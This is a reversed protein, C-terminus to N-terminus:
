LNNVFIKFDNPYLNAIKAWRDKIFPYCFFDKIDILYYGWDENNIFGKSKLVFMEHVNNILFSSYLSIKTEAQTSGHAEALAKIGQKDNILGIYGDRFNRYVVAVMQTELRLADRKVVEVNLALTKQTQRLLFFTFIATILTAISSIVSFVEAASMRRAATNETASKSEDKVYITDHRTMVASPPRKLKVTDRIKKSPINGVFLFCMFMILCNLNM